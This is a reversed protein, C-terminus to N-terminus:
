QAAEGPLLLVAAGPSFDAWGQRILWVRSGDEVLWAAAFDAAVLRASESRLAKITALAVLKQVLAEPAPLLALHTVPCALVLPM